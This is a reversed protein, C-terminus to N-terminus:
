EILYVDKYDFDPPEADFFWHRKFQNRYQEPLEPVPEKEQGKVWDTFAQVVKQVNVEVPFLRIVKM